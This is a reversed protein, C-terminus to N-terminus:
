VVGSSFYEHQLKQSLHIEHSAEWMGKEGLVGGGEVNQVEQIQTAHVLRSSADIKESKQISHHCALAMM